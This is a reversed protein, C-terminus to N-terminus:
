GDLTVREINYLTRQDYRNITEITFTIGDDWMDTVYEYYMELTMKNNDEIVDYWYKYDITKMVARGALAKNSFVGGVIKAEYDCDVTVVWVKM